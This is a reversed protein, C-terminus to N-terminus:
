LYQQQVNTMRKCVILPNWTNNHIVLLEILVDTM